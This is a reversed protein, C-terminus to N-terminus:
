NLIIKSDDFIPAVIFKQIPARDELDFQEKFLLKAALKQIEHAHELEIHSKDTHTTMKTLDNFFEYGNRGSDATGLWRDSKETIDGYVKSIKDLSFATRLLHEYKDEENWRLFKNRYELLERVSINTSKLHNVADIIMTDAEGDKHILLKNVTRKIRNLNFSKSQITSQMGKTGDILGNSCILRGYFPYANFTTQDFKIAAGRNWNDHKYVAFVSEPDTLIISVDETEDNYTVKDIEYKNSSGELSTTVMDFYTNFMKQYDEAFEPIENRAYVKSISEHTDYENVKGWFNLDANANRLKEQVDTWDTESMKDSYQLFTPFIRM